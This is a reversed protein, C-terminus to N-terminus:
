APRECWRKAPSGGSEAHTQPPETMNEQGPGGVCGLGAGAAAVTIIPALSGVPGETVVGTHRIEVAAAMGYHSCVPIHGGGERLLGSKFDLGEKREQIFPIRWM